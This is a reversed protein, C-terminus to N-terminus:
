LDSSGLRIIGRRLAAHAQFLRLSRAETRAAKSRVATAADLKERASWRSVDMLDLVLAWNEFVRRESEKWQSSDVGLARAVRGPVIRRMKAADGDFERAMRRNVALGVHRVHFRDWSGPSPVRSGSSSPLPPSEYLMNSRAFRRLTAAATRHRPDAAMREEEREVASAIAPDTPRFGLKRYFWFAGSDIAEENEFGLQYPDVSFSRSGLEQAFLKLVRAYIWASEGERFTYYVNFGVEVREFLALAEVYAVPVGNKVAFASFAARLPLRRSAPVGNLYLRVGRGAEAEIVTAPDGYTFGYLERYRVADAGRALDLIREGSRSSLRRTPLDSAELVQGISVDHRSLLPRRHFFPRGAPGRSLTRCPAPPLLRLTVPRALGDYIESGARGPLSRSEIASLLFLADPVRRPRAAEFWSRYPVNADAAAEEELLPIAHPLAAGLRDDGCSGEWDIWLRGPCRSALWRVLDRTFAATVTTGAIGSTEPTDLASLDAGSRELAAVRGAVGSLLGEASRLTAADHPYARLFLASEHARFLADAGPWPLRALIELDRCAQRAAGPGRGARALRRLAREVSGEPRRLLGRFIGRAGTM